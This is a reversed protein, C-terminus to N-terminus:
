AIDIEIGGIKSAVVNYIWAGILAFLFGIGGYFIPCAVIAGLGMAVGLLPSFANEPMSRQLSSLAMGMLSFMAIAVGILLGLVAYIVGAIKAVSLPGVRKITM